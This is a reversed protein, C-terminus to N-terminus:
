AKAAARESVMDVLNSVTFLSMVKGAELKGALEDTDIQPM